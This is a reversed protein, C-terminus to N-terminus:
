ILTVLSPNIPAFQGTAVDTHEIPLLPLSNTTTTQGQFFMGELADAQDHQETEETSSSAYDSRDSASEGAESDAIRMDKTYVASAQETSSTSTPAKDGIAVGILSASTSTPITAMEPNPIQEAAVLERSANSQHANHPLHSIRIRSQAQETRHLAERRAQSSQKAWEVGQAAMGLEVALLTTEKKAHRQLTRKSVVKGDAEHRCQSLCFCRYATPLPRDIEATSDCQSHGRKRM